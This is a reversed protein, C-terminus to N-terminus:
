MMDRDSVTNYICWQIVFLKPVHMLNPPIARVQYQYFKFKFNQSKEIHDSLKIVMMVTFVNFYYINAIKFKNVKSVDGFQWIKFLLNGEIVASCTHTVTDQPIRSLTVVFSCLKIQDRFNSVVMFSPHTM